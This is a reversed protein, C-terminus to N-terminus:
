VLLFSFTDMNIVELLIEFEVAIVQVLFRQFHHELVEKLSKNDLKTLLSLVSHKKSM